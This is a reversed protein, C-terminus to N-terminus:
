RRSARKIGIFAGIGVTLLGACLYLALVPNGTMLDFVSGLLDKLTDMSALVFAM